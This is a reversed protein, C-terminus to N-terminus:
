KFWDSTSGTVYSSQEIKSNEYKKIEGDSMWDSSPLKKKLLKRSRLSKRDTEILDVTDDVPRQSAEFEFYSFIHLKNRLHRVSIKLSNAASTRNGNFRQMTEYILEKEVEEISGIDKIYKSDM